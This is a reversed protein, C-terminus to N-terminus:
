QKVYEYTLQYVASTNIISQGKFSSTQDNLYGDGNFQKGSFKTEGIQPPADPRYSYSSDLIIDSFTRDSSLFGTVWNMEFYKWTAPFKGSLRLLTSDFLVANVGSYSRRIIKTLSGSGDYTFLGDSMTKDTAGSKITYKTIGGAPNYELLYYQQLVNNLDRDELRSINGLADYLVAVKQFIQSNKNYYDVSSLMGGAYNYLRFGSFESVGQSTNYNNRRYPKGESNFLYERELLNNRYMKSLLLSDGDKSKSCSLAVMAIICVWLVYIKM